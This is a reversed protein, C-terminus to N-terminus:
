EPLGAERLADTFTQHFENSRIPFLDRSRSTRFDPRLTMLQVAHQRADELRRTRVEHAILAPLSHADAVM